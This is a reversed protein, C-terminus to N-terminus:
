VFGQAHTLVAGIRQEYFPVALLVIRFRVFRKVRQQVLEGKKAHQFVVVAVFVRGVARHRARGVAAFVPLIPHREEHRARRFIRVHVGVEHVPMRLQRHEKFPHREQRQFFYRGHNRLAARADTHVDNGHFFGNRHLVLRHIDFMYGIPEFTVFAMDAGRDTRAAVAALLEVLTARVVVAVPADGHAVHGVVAALRSAAPRNGVVLGHFDQAAGFVVAIHMLNRVHVAFALNEGNAVAVDFDAVGQARGLEEIRGVQRAAGIHRFHVLRVAHGAAAAHFVTRGARDLQTLFEARRLAFDFVGLLLQGVGGLPARLFPVLVVAVFVADVAVGGARCRTLGGAGGVDGYLAIEFLRGLALVPFGQFEDLPLVGEGGDAAADAVAAALVGARAARHVLGHGDVGDLFEDGFM